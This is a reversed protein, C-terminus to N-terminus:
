SNAHSHVGEKSFAYCLHENMRSINLFVAFHNSLVTKVSWYKLPTKANIVEVLDWVGLFSIFLYIFLYVNCFTFKKDFNLFCVSNKM